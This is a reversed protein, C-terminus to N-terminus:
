IVFVSMYYITSKKSTAIKNNTKPSINFLYMDFLNNKKDKIKAANDEKICIYM